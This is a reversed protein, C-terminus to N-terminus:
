NKIGRPSNELTGANRLCKCTPSYGHMSYVWLAYVIPGELLTSNLSSKVGKQYTHMSCAKSGMPPSATFQIMSPEDPCMARGVPPTNCTNRHTVQMENRLHMNMDICFRCLSPLRHCLPETRNAQLSVCCTCQGMAMDFGDEVCLVGEPRAVLLCLFSLAYLAVSVHLAIATIHAKDM